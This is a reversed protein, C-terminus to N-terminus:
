RIRSNAEGEWLDANPGMAQKLPDSLQNLEEYLEPSLPYDAAAAIGRAQVPNRAGAIVSGVVPHKLLWALALTPMSVGEREAVGRIKAVTEFTLSEHGPEGHRAYEGEGSFHRMRSRDPQLQDARTYRGGLLGQMLSSYTLVSMGGGECAPIIASEIARFL